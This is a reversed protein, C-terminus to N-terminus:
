RGPASARRRQRREDVDLVREVREIGALEADVHVLQEDGLGAGALFRQADALRKDARVREVDDHEIGHGRQDGLGLEFALDAIGGDARLGPEHAGRHALEGGEDRLARVIQMKVLWIRSFIPTM